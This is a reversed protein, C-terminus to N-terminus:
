LTQNIDRLVALTAEALETVTENNEVVYDSRAAKENQDIQAAFTKDIMRESLGDRSAIRQRRIKDKAIVTIIRDVRKDAGSEFLTPAEYYITRYQLKSLNLTYEEFRERIRPLTISELTKRKRPDSFVLQRMKRRDLSGDALTVLAGFTQVIETLAPTGRATIERAIADASIVACGNNVLIRTLTSKGSGINGTVGVIVPKKETM